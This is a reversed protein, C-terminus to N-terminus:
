YFCHALVFWQGSREGGEGVGAAVRIQTTNLQQVYMHNNAGVSNPNASGYVMTQIEIPLNIVQGNASSVNNFSGWIFAWGAGDRTGRFKVWGPINVLDQVLPISNNRWLLNGDYDGRLEYSLAGGPKHARLIFGGKYVPDDSGFLWVAGGDTNMNGYHLAPNTIGTTSRVPGTMIKSGNLPLYNAFDGQSVAGINTRAQIKQAENLTQKTFSLANKVNDPVSKVGEWQVSSASVAKESKGLYYSDAVEKTLFTKMVGAIHEIFNQFQEIFNKPSEIM